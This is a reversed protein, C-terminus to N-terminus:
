LVFFDTGNTFELNTVTPNVTVSQIAFQRGVLFPNAPIGFTLISSGGATVGSALFVLPTVILRGGVIPVTAPPQFAVDLM